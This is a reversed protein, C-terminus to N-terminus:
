IEYNITLILIDIITLCQGTRGYRQAVIGFALQVASVRGFDKSFM